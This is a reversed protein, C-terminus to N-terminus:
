TKTQVYVDSVACVTVFTGVYLKTIDIINYTSLLDKMELDTLTKPQNYCLM